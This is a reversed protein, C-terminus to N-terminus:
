GQRDKSPEPSCCASRAAGATTSLEAATAASGADKSGGVLKHMCLGLACMALCPLVSIVLPAIGAAVLWSWNLAAGAGIAVVALLILGNRGRLRRGITDLWPLKRAPLDLSNSTTM